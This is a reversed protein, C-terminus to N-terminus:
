GHPCKVIERQQCCTQKKGNSDAGGYHRMRLFWFRWCDEGIIGILPEVTGAHGSSTFHKAKVTIGRLGAFEAHAEFIGSVVADRGMGMADIFMDGYNGTAWKVECDAIMKVDVGGSLRNMGRVQGYNGGTHVMESPTVGLRDELYVASSWEFAVKEIRRLVFTANRFLRTIRREISGAKGQALSAGAM